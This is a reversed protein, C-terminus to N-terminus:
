DNRCVGAGIRTLPLGDDDAASELIVLLKVNAPIVERRATLGRLMTWTADVFLRANVDWGELSYWGSVVPM